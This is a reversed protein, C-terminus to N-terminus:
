VASRLLWSNLGLGFDWCRSSLLLRRPHCNLSSLLIMGLLHGQNWKQLLQQSGPLPIVSLTELLLLFHLLQQQATTLLLPLPLLM